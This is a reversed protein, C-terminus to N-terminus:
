LAADAICLLTQGGHRIVKGILTFVAFRLRKPHADAYETDLAVKKLLQLLYGNKETKWAQWKSNPLSEIEKKLQKSMDASVAFDWHHSNWDDLLISFGGKCPMKM